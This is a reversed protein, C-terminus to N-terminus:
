IITWQQQCDYLITHLVCSFPHNAKGILSFHQRITSSSVDEEVNGIYEFKFCEILSPRPCLCVKETGIFIWSGNFQAGVLCM